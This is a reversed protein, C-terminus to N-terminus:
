TGISLETGPGATIVEGGPLYVMWHEYGATFITFTRLVTGDDFTFVTSLSPQEIQVGTLVRGDLVRVANELTERPDESSAVVSTGTEIRWASCYVWVHWEGHPTSRREADAARADAARAAGLEFTVFSGVGLRSGWVPLGYAAALRSEAEHTTLTVDPNM